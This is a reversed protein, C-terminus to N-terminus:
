FAFGVSLRATPYALPIDSEAVDLAFLRKAGLGTGIFFRNQAGLLWNYDLVIGISLARGRDTERGTDDTLSGSLTTLGFLGGLALGELARASPYYRAKADISWYSIDGSADTEDFGSAWYTTSAGLSATPTIRREFELSYLEFIVGLPNIAIYQAPTAQQASAQAPFLVAGLLLTLLATRPMTM